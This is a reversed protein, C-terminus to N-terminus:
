TRADVGSSRMKPGICSRHKAPAPPAALGAGYLAQKVWSYSLRIGHETKLKQRFRWVGLDSYSNQYLALVKEATSLPVRHIYRKHGHQDYLGDYGYDEYKQRM